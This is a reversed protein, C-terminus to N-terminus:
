LEMSLEFIAITIDPRALAAIIPTKHIKSRPPTRTAPDVFPHNTECRYLPSRVAARIWTIFLTNHCYSCM